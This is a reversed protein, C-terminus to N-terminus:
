ECWRWHGLVRRTDGEQHHECRRLTFGSFVGNLVGIWFIFLLNSIWEVCFVLICFICVIEDM